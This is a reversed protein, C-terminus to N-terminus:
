KRGPVRCRIDAPGCTVTLNRGRGGRDRRWDPSRPAPRAQQRLVGRERREMRQPWNRVNTRANTGYRLHPHARRWGTWRARDRDRHWSRGDFWVFLGSSWYPAPLLVPTAYRPSGYYPYPAPAYPAPAVAVGGGGGVLYSASAYGSVGGYSVQCWPGTCGGIDVPANDPIVAIVQYGTGPGARLNLDATVRGPAADAEASFGVCLAAAAAAIVFRRM